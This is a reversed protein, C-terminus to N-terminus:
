ESSMVLQVCTDLNPGKVSPEVDLHGWVSQEEFEEDMGYKMM